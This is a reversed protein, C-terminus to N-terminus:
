TSLRRSAVITSRCNPHFNAPIASTVEELSPKAYRLVTKDIGAPVDYYTDLTALNTSVEWESGHLSNCIHSTDADQIAIYRYHTIDNVVMANLYGAHYLRIVTNSALQNFYQNNLFIKNLTESDIASQRNNLAPLFVRNVYEGYYYNLKDITSEIYKDEDISNLGEQNFENRPLVRKIVATNISDDIAVRFVERLFNRILTIDSETLLRVNALRQGITTIASQALVGSDIARLIEERIRDTRTIFLGALFSALEFEKQSYYVVQSEAVGRLSIDPKQIGYIDSKAMGRRAEDNILVM